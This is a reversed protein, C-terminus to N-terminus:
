IRELFKNYKKYVHSRNTFHFKTMYIYCFMKVVMKKLFLLLFSATSIVKLYM